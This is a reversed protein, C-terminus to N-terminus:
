DNGIVDQLYFAIAGDNQTQLNDLLHHYYLHIALHLHLINYSELYKGFLYLITGTNHQIHQYHNSVIYDLILHFLLFFTYVKQYFTNNLCGNRCLHEHFVFNHM